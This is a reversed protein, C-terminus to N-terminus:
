MERDKFLTISQDTEACAYAQVYIFLNRFSIFFLNTNHSSLLFTVISKLRGNNNTTKLAFILHSPLLLLLLLTVLLNSDAMTSMKKFAFVNRRKNFLLNSDAVM